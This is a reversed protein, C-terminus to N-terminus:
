KNERLDRWLAVAEGKLTAFPKKGEMEFDKFQIINGEKFGVADRCVKRTGGATCEAVAMDWRGDMAQRLSETMVNWFIRKGVYDPKTAALLTHLVRSGPISEKELVAKFPKDLEELLRILPLAKVINKSDAPVEYPTNVLVSIIDSNKRKGEIKQEEAVITTKLDVYPHVYEDYFELFAPVGMKLHSCTPERTVFTHAVLNRVTNLDAKRASRYIIRSAM